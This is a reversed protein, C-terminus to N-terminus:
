EARAVGARRARENYRRVRNRNGCDSAVCWRRNHRPSTDVFVWGCADDECQGLADPAVGTLLDVAALALRRRPLALDPDFEWTRAVDEARARAGALAGAAPDVSRVLRGAAIAEAYEAAILAAGEESAAVDARADGYAAAYLAERLDRARGVERAASGPHEEAARRVATAAEEDVLGFQRVWALVDDYDGLHDIWRERSLRWDVTNVFDLGPHGAIASYPRRRTSGTREM